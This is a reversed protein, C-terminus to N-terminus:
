GVSTPSATTTARGTQLIRKCLAVLCVGDQQVDALALAELWHGARQGLVLVLESRARPSAPERLPHAQAGKPLLM